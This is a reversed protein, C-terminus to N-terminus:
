MYLSVKFFNSKRIGLTYIGYLELLRICVGQENWISFIRLFNKSHAENRETLAKYSCDSYKATHVGCSTLLLM